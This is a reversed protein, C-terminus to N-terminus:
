GMVFGRKQPKEGFLRLEAAPLGTVPCKNSGHSKPFREGLAPCLVAVLMSKYIEAM